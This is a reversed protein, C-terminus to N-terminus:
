NELKKWEESFEDLTQKIDKNNMLIEQIVRSSLINLDKKHKINKLPPQMNELQKVSIIKAQSILDNKQAIKFFNDRVSNKNVPLVSTLKSFEIQNKSNTFFLAFKLAEERNKAKIPIIFNMLSFDYKGTTGTLQPLIVTNRYVDPANEKIMNLFNAGAVIFVLQGSMYKELAERHGQTLSEVPIYKNDYAMKVKKFFSISDENKITEPSNINYKNLIKLLTDNESFAIMTIYKNKPPKLSLVDLYTKPMIELDPLLSKNFLTVASTAYFPIGYYKEDYKLAESLNYNEMVDKPIEWLANKQALLMSFDPTINILDPPNDTLVSALTRKEGEAYPIDVWKIEKNGYNSIINNIYEEFASLQLTWFVVKNEDPIKKFLFLGALIIVLIVAKKFKLVM